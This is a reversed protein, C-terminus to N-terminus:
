EKKMHQARAHRSSLMNAREEGGCGREVRDITAETM